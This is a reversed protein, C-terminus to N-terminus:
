IMEHCIAAFEAEVVKALARPEVVLQKGRIGASIIISDFELAAKDIFTRFKRKMALPSCGGRIYGTLKELENIAVLECSKVGSAKSLAKLDLEREGSICAVIHEKTNAVCVITKYIQTINQGTAKAVHRASLDELDVEYTLIEYEVGFKDLERAANTKKIKDKM